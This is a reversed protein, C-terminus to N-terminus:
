KGTVQTDGTPALIRTQLAESLAQAKIEHGDKKKKKKQRWMAVLIARQTAHTNFCHWVQVLGASRDTSVPKSYQGDAM